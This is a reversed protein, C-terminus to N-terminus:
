EVKISHIPHKLFKTETTGWGQSHTSPDIKFHKTQDHYAVRGFKTAKAVVAPAYINRNHIIKTQQPGRGIPTLTPKVQVFREMERVHQVLNPPEAANNGM